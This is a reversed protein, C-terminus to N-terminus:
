EVRTIMLGDPDSEGIFKMGLRRGTSQAARYVSGSDFKSTDCGLYYVSEGVDMDKFPYKSGGEQRVLETPIPVHKDIKYEM